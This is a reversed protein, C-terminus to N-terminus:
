ARGKPQVLLLANAVSREGTQNSPRNVIRRRVIMTTSGGGDLNLAQFAGRRAKTFLPLKGTMLEALEQLTMGVSHGPQRGDITVLFLTQEDQTFGVATRPHRDAAFAASLHEQQHEISVHGDRVIRPGGGIAAQLVATAPPLMCYLQVTDGPSVTQAQAFATGGAVLWQGPQLRLPWGRRRVQVVRAVVTDNVVTAASDLAQLFFGVPAHVSDKWAQARRNFFTLEDAARPERNLHSVKLVHGSKTILGARMSLVAIIPRGQATIAFASRPRPEELLEGDAVQVGSSHVPTGGFFFDGNVAAVADRALTSTRELGSREFPARATHLRIGAKWAIPLSVELVHIAWPGEILEVTHHWVGPAITETNAPISPGRCAAVASLALAASCCRM